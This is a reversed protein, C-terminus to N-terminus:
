RGPGNRYTACPPRALDVLCYGVFGAAVVVIPVVAAVPVSGSM